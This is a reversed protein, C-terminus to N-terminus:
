VLNITSVPNSRDSEPIRLDGSSRLDVQPQGGSTLQTVEAGGDLHDDFNESATMSTKVQHDDFNESATM